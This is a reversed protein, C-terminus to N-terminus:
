FVFMCPTWAALIYLYAANVSSMRNNRVLGSVVSGTSSAYNWCKLVIEFRLILKMLDKARMMEKDCCRTSWHLSFKGNWQFGTEIVYKPM